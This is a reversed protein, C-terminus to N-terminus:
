GRHDTFPHWVQKPLTYCEQGAALWRLITYVLYANLDVERYEASTPYTACGWLLQYVGGKM